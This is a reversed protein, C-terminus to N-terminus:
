DPSRGTTQGPLDSMGEWGSLGADLLREPQHFHVVPAMSGRVRLM